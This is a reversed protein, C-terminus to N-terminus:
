HGRSTTAKSGYRGGFGGEEAPQFILHVKGAFNRTASLYKAAALLMTTHGAFRSLCCTLVVKTPWPQPHM